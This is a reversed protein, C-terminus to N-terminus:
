KGALKKLFYDRTEPSMHSGVAHMQYTLQNEKQADFLRDIFEIIKM